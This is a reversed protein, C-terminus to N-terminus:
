RSELKQLSTNYLYDYKLSGGFQTDTELTFFANHKNTLINRGLETLFLSEEKNYFPFLTQIIALWQADGFGYYGQHKLLYVLLSNTNEFDHESIAQLAMRELANIGTNIDPFRSLHAEICNSLYKLQSDKLSLAKMALPKDQTYLKWFDHLVKTDSTTLTIKNQYEITLENPTLEGLGFLGPRNEIVGSCVLFLPKQINKQLLYSVVASVNIHCFLDYEFWLTISDYNESQLVNFQDIFIQYKTEIDSDFVSLYKIRKDIFDKSFINTESPGECLIENWTLVIQSPYLSKLRETFHSGNTIHITKDAM